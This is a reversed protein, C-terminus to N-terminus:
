FKPCAQPWWCRRARTSCIFCSRHPIPPITRFALLAGLYYLFVQQLAGSTRRLANDVWWAARGLALYGVAVGVLGFNVYLEASMGPVVHIADYTGFLIRSTVDTSTLLDPTAPYLGVLGLLPLAASAVASVFTQGYLFGNLRVYEFSTGIISYRGWEWDLWNGPDVGAGLGDSRSQSVAVIYALAAAGGLLVAIARLGRLRPLAYLVLSLAMVFPMSRGGTWALSSVILTTGIAVILLVALANRSGTLSIAILAGLTIIWTVWHSLFAYRATGGTLAIIRSSGLDTAISSVQILGYIAAPGLLLIVLVGIRMDRKSRWMAQGTAPQYTAVALSKKAGIILCVLGVLAALNAQWIYDAPFNM